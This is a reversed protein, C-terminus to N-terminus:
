EESELVSRVRRDLWRQVSAFLANPSSTDLDGWRVLAAAADAISAVGGPDVPRGLLEDFEKELDASVNLVLLAIWSALVHRMLPTQQTHQGPREVPQRLQTFLEHKRNLVLAIFEATFPEDRPDNWAARMEWLAGDVGLDEEVVPFLSGDGDVVVRIPSSLMGLRTGTNRALGADVTDARGADSLFAQVSIMGSGRMSGQPLMLVLTLPGDRDMLVGRTLHLPPGLGRWGSEASTWELTLLLSADSAAVGGVGFLPGLSAANELTCKIALNHLDPNWDSDTGLSYEGGGLDRAGPDPGASGFVMRMIPRPMDPLGTALTRYPSLAIASM